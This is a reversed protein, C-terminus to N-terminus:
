GDWWASSPVRWVVTSPLTKVSWKHVQTCRSISCRSSPAMQYRWPHPPELLTTQDGRFTKGHYCKSHGERWRLVLPHKTRSLAPIHKLTEQDCCQQFKREHLLFTTPMVPSEKFLRHCFTFVSVYFDGLQFTTDNSLLQPSPSKLLLVRDLIAKQGCICFTDPYTNDQPCVRAHITNHLNLVSLWTINKAQKAEQKVPKRSTPLKSCTSSAHPHNPNQQHHKKQVTKSYKVCCVWKWCQSTSTSLHSCVAPGHPTQQKWSRIWLCSKWKWHLPDTCLQKFSRTKM